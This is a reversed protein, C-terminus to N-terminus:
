LQEKPGKCTSAKKSPTHVEFDQSPGGHRKVIPACLESKLLARLDQHHHYRLGPAVLELRMGDPDEERRKIPKRQADSPQVTPILENVTAPSGMLFSSAM